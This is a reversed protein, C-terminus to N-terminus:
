ICNQIPLPLLHTTSYCHNCTCATMIKNRPQNHKSRHYDRALGNVRLHADKHFVLRQWRIQSDGHECSIVSSGTLSKNHNQVSIILSLRQQYQNAQATQEDCFQLFFTSFAHSMKAHQLDNDATDYTHKTVTPLTVHNYLM